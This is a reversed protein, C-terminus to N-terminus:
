EEGRDPSHEVVTTPVVCGDMLPLGSELRSGLDDLTFPLLGAGPTNFLDAALARLERGVIARAETRAETHERTVEGLAERLHLVERTLDRALAMLDANPGAEAYRLGGRRVTALVSDGVNQRPAIPVVVHWYDVGTQCDSAVAWPDPTSTDLLGQLRETSLDAPM